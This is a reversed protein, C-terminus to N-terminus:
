RLSNLLNAAESSGPHLRLAEQASKMAEDFRGQMAYAQSEMLLAQLNSPDLQKARRISSLAREVEGLQMRLRALNLHPGPSDPDTEAAALFSDLAKDVSGTQIYLVGLSTHLKASAAGLDRATEYEALADEFQSQSALVAGLNERFRADDPRAAIARRFLREAAELGGQAFRISGLVSLAQGDDPQIVLSEELLREAEAAEGRQILLTALNVKADTLGPEATLAERLLEEGLGVQGDSILVGALNNLLSPTRGERVLAEDFMRRAPTGLGREAFASALEAFDRKPQSRAWTGAFPLANGRGVEVDNLIVNPDVEGRYVKVIRGQRDLLLSTPIALSRRRDFLRENLVSYSEATELNALLVDYGLELEEALKRVSDSNGPEDVSLALIEAGLRSIDGLRTQFQALERRCPPCWTAWFNLLIAHGKRESLRVAGGERNMVPLEFDPAPLPVALWTGPGSETATVGSPESARSSSGPPRVRRFGPEGEVLLLTGSQPPDDVTVVSGLPWRARIDLVREDAPLAFRAERARQSLYGSGSVIERMLTRRVTTVWVRGGVGDRNSRSGQLRVTLQRNRGEQLDNRFARLQRGNRNKLILDQDGDHDLDIPVFARGDADLDLGSLFSIDDFTGDGRNLFCLNRERGSWSGDSRILINIARWADAYDKSGKAELPSQSM